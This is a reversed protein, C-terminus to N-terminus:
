SHRKEGFQSGLKPMILFSQLFVQLLVKLLKM